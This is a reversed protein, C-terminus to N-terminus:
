RYRTLIQAQCGSPSFVHYHGSDIRDGAFLHSVEIMVRKNDFAGAHSGHLDTELGIVGPTDM